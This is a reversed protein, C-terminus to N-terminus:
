IPTSLARRRRWLALALVSIGTLLVIIPNPEPVRSVDRDSQVRVTFLPNIRTVGGSDLFDGSINMLGGTETLRFAPGVLGTPPSLAGGGETDSFFLLRWQQDTGTTPNGVIQLEVIDSIAGTVPDLLEVATNFTASHPGSRYGIFSSSPHPDTTETFTQNVPNFCVAISATCLSTTTGNGFQKDTKSNASVIIQDSVSNAIACPVVLLFGIALL